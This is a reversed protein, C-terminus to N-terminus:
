KVIFKTTNDLQENYLRVFYLGKNLNIDLEILETINHKESMIRSGSTNYVEVYVEGTTYDDVNIFLKNNTVPNPYIHVSGETLFDIGTTTETLEIEQNVTAKKCLNNVHLVVTYKGYDAYTHLPNEDTSTETDGFEWSFEKSNESKNTFTVQLDDITYEFDAVPVEYNDLYSISTLGKSSFAWIKNNFVTIEFFTASLGNGMNTWNAGLDETVGLTVDDKGAMFKDEGLQIIDFSYDSTVFEYNAFQDTTKLVGNGSSALITDSNLVLMDTIYGFSADSINTWTSGGDETKLLFNLGAVFGIQGSPDFCIDNIVSSYSNDAYIDNSSKTWTEGKDVTKYIFGHKINAADQWRVTVFGTNEDIQEMFYFYVKAGAVPDITEDGSGDSFASLPVETWNDGADTSKLMFGNTAGFASATILGTNNDFFIIDNTIHGDKELPFIPETWTEGGDVTKIITTGNGIAIATNDDFVHMKQLNQDIDLQNASWYAGISDITIEQESSVEEIYNSATLKVTYTGFKSYVHSTTVEDNSTSLEGFNWEFTACNQSTNTFFVYNGDETYYTFDASPQQVTIEYNITDNAVANSGVLEITHANYDTFRYVPDTVSSSSDATFNWTYSGCNLSENTFEAEAGKLIYSYDAVPDLLEKPNLVNVVGTNGLAWISGNFLTLDWFFTTQGNAAPEWNTGGDISRVTKTSTFGSFIINDEEFFLVDFATIDNLATINVGADETYFTGKTTALYVKNADVLRLDNVSLFAANTYDTWNAGGDASKMFTSASGGIYVVENIFEISNIIVSGLDASSITWNAGKDTTKFIYGHKTTTAAEEWQLAAYGIDGSVQLARFNIKKGATPDTVDNGSGDSFNTLAVETWNEGADLSKLMIGNYPDVKTSIIFGNQADAFDVDTFHYEVNNPLVFNMSNWTEGGDTTKIIITDNGVLIANENDLAFLKNSTEGTGLDLTKWQAMLLGPVILLLFLFLTFKKM